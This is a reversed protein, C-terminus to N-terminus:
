RSSCFGLQGRASIKWKRLRLSAWRPPISLTLLAVLALAGWVPRVDVPAPERRLGAGDTLAAALGPADTLPRYRLGTESALLELYQEHLSSLQEEGSPQDM